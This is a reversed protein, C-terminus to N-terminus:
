PACDSAQARHRDVEEAIHRALVVGSARRLVAAHFRGLELAELDQYVAAARHSGVPGSRRLLLGLGIPPPRYPAVACATADAIPLGAEPLPAPPATPNSLVDYLQQVAEDSGFLDAHQLMDRAKGHLGRPRPLCELDAMLDSLGPDSSPLQSGAAAAPVSLQSCPQGSLPPEEEPSVDQLPHRGRVLRRRQRVPLTANEETSSLLERDPSSEPVLAEHARKGRLADNPAVPTSLPDHPSGGGNPRMATEENEERDSSTIQTGILSRPPLAPGIMRTMKGRRNRRYVVPHVQFLGWIRPARLLIKLDSPNLSEVAELAKALPSHDTSTPMISSSVAPAVDSPTTLEHPMRHGSIRDM